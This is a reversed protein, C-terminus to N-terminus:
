QQRHLRRMDELEDMHPSDLLAKWHFRRDFPKLAVDADFRRKDIPRVDDYGGVAGRDLLLPLGGSRGRGAPRYRLPPSAARKKIASGTQM